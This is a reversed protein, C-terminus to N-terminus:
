KELNANIWSLFNAVRTYVDPYGIGCLRGWNLTVIGVQTKNYVLPAGYDFYCTGEGRKTLTCIHNETLESYTAKCKTQSYITLNIEQLNNSTGGGLKISGWGSLTCTKNELVTDNIQTALKIPQVKTTYRIPTKIHLLAIDNVLRINNYDENITVNAIEYVDGTENQFNTGVHVKLSPLVGIKDNICHASTLINRNDIISGSCVYTNYIRLSVQYPYKGTPADKGGVIQPSLAGETAYALVIFVLYALASM